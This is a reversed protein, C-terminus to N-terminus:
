AHAESPKAVTSANRPKRRTLDLYLSEHARVMRTESLRESVLILAKDALRRALAKDDLLRNVAGALAQHDAPPFLLGTHEHQIFEEMAPLSSCAVPCRAAMAEAPAIGFAESLSPFVFVDLLSLLEAIDSRAGALCIRDAHPSGQLRARMERELPGSGVILFQTDPHRALILPVADLLYRHGKEPVLRGVTGITRLSPNLGIERCLRERDTTVRFRNVDVGHQITVVEVAKLREQRITLQRLHESVCIVKETRWRLVSDVLRHPLRKWTGLNHLTRVVVHPGRVLLAAVRGVVDGQFLHTHVIDYRGERLYRALQMIARADYRLLRRYDYAPLVIVKFGLSEIEQQYAGGEIICYFDVEFRSRDINRAITSMVQGGGGLELGTIIQAVRIRRGNAVDRSTATTLVEAPARTMSTEVPDSAHAAVGQPSM